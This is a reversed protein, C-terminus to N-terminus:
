TYDSNYKEEIKNKQISRLFHKFCKIFICSVIVFQKM